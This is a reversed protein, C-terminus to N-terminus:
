NRRIEETRISVLSSIRERHTATSSVLLVNTNLNNDYKSVITSIICYFLCVILYKYQRM